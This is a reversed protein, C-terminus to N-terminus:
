IALMSDSMVSAFRALMLQYFCLVVLAALTAITVTASTSKAASQKPTVVSPTIAVKSLDQTIGSRLDAITKDFTDKSLPETDQINEMVKNAINQAVLQM